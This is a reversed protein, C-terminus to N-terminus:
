QVSKETVGFMQVSVKRHSGQAIQIYCQFTLSGSVCHFVSICLSTIVSHLHVSHSNCSFNYAISYFVLDGNSNFTHFIPHCQREALFSRQYKLIISIMDSSETIHGGSYDCVSM